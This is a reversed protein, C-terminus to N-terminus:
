QLFNMILFICLFWVFLPIENFLWRLVLRGCPKRGDHVFKYFRLARYWGTGFSSPVYRFNFTCIFWLRGGSYVNHPPFKSTNHMTFRISDIRYSSKSSFLILTESLWQINQNNNINTYRTALAWSKLIVCWSYRILFIWSVSAQTSIVLNSSNWSVMLFLRKRVSFM